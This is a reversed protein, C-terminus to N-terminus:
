NELKPEDQPESKEDMPKTSPKAEPQSATTDLPEAKTTAGAKQAAKEKRRERGVLIGEVIGAVGFICLSIGTTLMITTDSTYAPEQIFLYVACLALVAPVLYFWASLAVPRIAISLVYLQYFAAFAILIGFMVSVLAIFTPQFILMCLGLIM